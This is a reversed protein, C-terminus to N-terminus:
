PASHQPASLPSIAELGCLYQTVPSPNSGPYLIGQVFGKEKAEERKEERRQRQEEKETGQCM